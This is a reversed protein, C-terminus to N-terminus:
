WIAERRGSRHYRQRIARFQAAMLERISQERERQLSRHRYMNVQLMPPVFPLNVLLVGPLESFFDGLARPVAAAADPERLDTQVVRARARRQNWGIDIIGQM